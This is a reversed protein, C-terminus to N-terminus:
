PKSEQLLVVDSESHRRLVELTKGDPSWNFSVITDANFNTIQHGAAGVLPQVWLNDVGKDRIEYVLAKEDPTFRLGEDGYVEFLSDQRVEVLKPPAASNLDMFAVKKTVKQTKPEVQFVPYALTKGHAFLAMPGAVPYGQFSSSGPLPEPKESGDLPTRMIQRAAADVYYLWKEDSSCIGFLDLKGNTMQVPATGDANARWVTTSNDGGHFPWTFLLYRRGCSAPFGLLANPDAILQRANTGDSNAKWLGAGNSVLLNGDDTWAVSNIPHIDLPLQDIQSRTGVSPLIYVNKTLRLQVMALTKRDASASLSEFGNVDRTIVHLDGGTGALWGIQGSLLGVARRSSYLVLLVGGDPSWSLGYVAKDAFIALRRSVGTAFDFAEIGGEATGPKFVDYAIQQGDPSWALFYPPKNEFAMIQLVKEDNGDWTATLLCYKGVEPVNARVYAIRRGDPSFAINSFVNRLIMQPSGGFLPARFLDSSSGDDKSFYIYNGDPSFALDGYNSPFPPIVQTDSDTPVNHLWLSQLGNENHVNMVFRGDPSISAATAKGSQTIRRITFTQFPAPASQHRLSHFEFVAACLVISLGIGWVVAGWKLQKGVAAPISSSRRDASQAGSERQIEAPSKGSIDADRQGSDTDRKLRRLDARMEGAGQYRLNRDKELAKSIIDNLRPPLDPNLRVPAVPKRELIANFILGTSEGRFPLQGTAMEHLVAGFSFLDTRSDLEKARVQEPSMYAITGLTSGPSTLHEESEITEASLAVSEPKLTVKALGFDLIKVQGRSTVFINAPKIDRHIIGKSHAADLADAIQIGLDLVTEIELAKGAIMHRLTQGELLEMAIFTRGDAEDIDYITCINAHNLSSAAKAERQFRSLAQSDNALDDPLFKLAVHRGLKLDEAEYVVAMGGGGIKGLIRYHSITEQVPQPPSPM